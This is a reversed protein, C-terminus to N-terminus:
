RQKEGGLFGDPWLWRYLRVPWWPKPELEIPKRCFCEDEEILCIPCLGLEKIRPDNFADHKYALAINAAHTDMKM